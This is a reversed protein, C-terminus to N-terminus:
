FICQQSSGAALTILANIQCGIASHLADSGANGCGMRLLTQSALKAAGGNLWRGVVGGVVGWIDKLKHLALAANVIACACM